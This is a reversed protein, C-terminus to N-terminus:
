SCPDETPILPNRALSGPLHGLECVSSVRFILLCSIAINWFVFRRLSPLDFSGTQGSLSPFVGESFSCLM